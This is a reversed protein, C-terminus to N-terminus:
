YDYDLFLFAWSTKQLDPKMSMMSAALMSKSQPKIKIRFIIEIIYEM